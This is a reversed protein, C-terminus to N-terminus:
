LPLMSHFPHIGCDLFASELSSVSSLCSFGGPAHLPSWLSLLCTRLLHPLALLSPRRLPLLLFCLRALPRLLEGPPDSSDQNREIDPWVQIPFPPQSVFLRIMFHSLLILRLSEYPHYLLRLSSFHSLPPNSAVPSPAFPRETSANWNPSIPLAQSLFGDPHLM